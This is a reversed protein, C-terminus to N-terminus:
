RKSENEAVRVKEFYEETDKQYQALLDYFHRDDGYVRTMSDHMYSLVMYIYEDIASFDVETLTRFKAM